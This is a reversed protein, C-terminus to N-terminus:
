EMAVKTADIYVIKGIVNFDNQQLAGTVRVSVGQPPMPISEPISVWIYKQDDYIKFMKFSSMPTKTEAMGVVVVNQGIRQAGNKQIDGIAETGSPVSSCGLSFLFAGLILMTCLKRMTMGGQAPDKNLFIMPKKRDKSEVNIVQIACNKGSLYSSLYM